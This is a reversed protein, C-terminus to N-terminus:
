MPDKRMTALTKIVLAKVPLVNDDSVNAKTDICYM